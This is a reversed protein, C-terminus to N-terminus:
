SGGANATRLSSTFRLPSRSDNKDSTMTTLRQGARVSDPLDADFMDALKAQLGVYRDSVAGREHVPLHSSTSEARLTAIRYTASLHPSYGTSGVAVVGPLAVIGACDAQQRAREGFFTRRTQEQWFSNLPEM